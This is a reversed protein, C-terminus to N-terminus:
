SCPALKPLRDPGSVFKGLHVQYLRSYDGSKDADKLVDEIFNCFETDGKHVGVSWPEVTFPKNVLDFSGPARSVLGAEILGGTVLADVSGNRLADICKSIVDFPIVNVNPYKATLVAQGESGGIVCAKRGELSEPGSLGLPNGKRVMLDQGTVIYPGAFDVAQRRKENVAYTAVIYDVKNQQLFPERNTSSTEVWTINQPTIGLKAAILKAIEVDYGVPQGSLNRLGFLPQDFKVGVTVHGAGALRAMTSGSPFTEAALPVGLALLFSLGLSFRRFM